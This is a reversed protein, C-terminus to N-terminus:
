SFRIWLGIILFVLCGLSALLNIAALSNPVATLDSKSIGIPIQDLRGLEETSRGEYEMNERLRDIKSKSSHTAYNHM